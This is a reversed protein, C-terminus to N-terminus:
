GVTVTRNRGAGLGALVCAAALGVFLLQVADWSGTQDKIVGVALPGM